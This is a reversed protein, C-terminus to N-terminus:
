EKGKCENLRRIIEERVTEINNKDIYEPLYENYVKKGHGKKMKIAELVTIKYKKIRNRITVPSFGLEMLLLSLEKNFLATKKDFSSRLYPRKNNAQEKFTVWRCNEPCYGKDNDIRDITLNDAYGNNIAWNYFNEMGTKKNLWEECIDIGRGGYNKFSDSNSNYCRYIMGNRIISLRSNSLGHKIKHSKNDKRHRQENNLCGCSLTKGLYLNNYWTIKEKGCDCVCRYKANKGKEKIIEVVVLRGFRKNLGEEIKSM